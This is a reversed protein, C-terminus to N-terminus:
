LHNEVADLKGQATLLDRRIKESQCRLPEQLRWWTYASISNALKGSIDACAFLSM